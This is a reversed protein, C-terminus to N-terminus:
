VHEKRNRDEKALWSGAHGAVVMVLVTSIITIVFLWITRGAFLSFYNVVGATAPVFLLPLYRLLIGAGAEVAQAPVLKITLGAFLLLLGIISGPIPLNLFGQLLSGIAYIGYILTIQIIVKFINM